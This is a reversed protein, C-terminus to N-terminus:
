RSIQFVEGKRMEVRCGCEPSNDSPVRHPTEILDEMGVLGWLVDHHEQQIHNIGVRGRASLGGSHSYLYEAIDVNLSCDAGFGEHAEHCFTKYSVGLSCFAFYQVGKQGSSYTWTSSSLWFKLGKLGNFGKLCSNNCFKLSYCALFLLYDTNFHLYM